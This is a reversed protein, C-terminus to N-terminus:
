RSHAQLSIRDKGSAQGAATRPTVISLPSTHSELASRTPPHGWANRAVLERRQWRHLSPTLQLAPLCASWGMECALSSFIRLPSSASLAPSAQLSPEEGARQGWGNVTGQGHPSCHTRAPGQQRAPGSSESTAQDQWTGSERPLVLVGHGDGAGHQSSGAM